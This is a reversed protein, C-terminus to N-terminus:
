ELEITQEFVKVHGCRQCSTTIKEKTVIVSSPPKGEINSYVERAQSAKRNCSPCFVILHFAGDRLGTEHPNNIM